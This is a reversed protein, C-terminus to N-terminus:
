SYRLTAYHLLVYRLVASFLQTTKYTVNKKKLGFGESNSRDRRVKM